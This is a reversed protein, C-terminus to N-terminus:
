TKGGERQEVLEALWEGHSKGAAMAGLKFARVTAPDVNRVNLTTQDNM